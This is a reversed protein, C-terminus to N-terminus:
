SASLFAARVSVYGGLRCVTWRVPAIGFAYKPIRRLDDPTLHLEGTARNCREQLSVNLGQWGGDKRTSPDQRFLAEMEVESLVVDM